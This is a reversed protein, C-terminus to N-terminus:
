VHTSYPIIKKVCDYVKSMLNQQFATQLMLKKCKRNTKKFNITLWRICIM